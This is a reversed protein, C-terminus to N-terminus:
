RCCLVGEGRMQDAPDVVVLSNKREHEGTRCDLGIRDLGFRVEVELSGAQLRDGRQAQRTVTLADRQVVQGGILADHALAEDVRGGGRRGVPTPGLAPERCRDESSQEERSRM